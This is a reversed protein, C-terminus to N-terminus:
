KKIRAAFRPYDYGETDILIIMAGHKAKFWTPTKMRFTGKHPEWFEFDKVPSVGGYLDKWTITKLGKLFDQVEKPMLKVSKAKGLDVFNTPKRTLVPDTMYVGTRTNKEQGGSFLYNNVFSTLKQENLIDKFDKM